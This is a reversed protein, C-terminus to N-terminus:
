GLSGVTRICSQGKGSRKAVYMAQDALRLCEAPDFDPHQRLDRPDVTVVGISFNLMPYMPNLEVRLAKRLREVIVPVEESRTESLILVFEDGGLRGVGDYPRTHARLATAIRQLAVDGALHGQQDNISKFGDCDLLAVAFSRDLRRTRGFEADLFEFIARRNSLDTLADIRASLRAMALEKSAWSSLLLLVVTIVLRLTNALLMTGSWGSEVADGAVWAITGAGMIALLVRAPGFWGAFVTALLILGWAEAMWPVPILRFCHLLTFTCWVAAYSLIVIATNPADVRGIPRLARGPQTARLAASSKSSQIGSTDDDCSQM